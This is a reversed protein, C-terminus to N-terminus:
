PSYSGGSSNGLRPVGRSSCPWPSHAGLGPAESLACVVESIAEATKTQDSETLPTNGRRHRYNCSPSSTRSPSQHGGKQLSPVQFCPNHIRTLPSGQHSLHHLIQGCHPLGPNLGQTSCIGQLLAHCSVGSNKGPSDGHVFSGPLSYNMPDWLTLCLQAVSCIRTLVPRVRTNPHGLSEGARQWFWGREQHDAAASLGPAGPATGWPKLSSHKRFGTGGRGTFVAADPYPEPAVQLVCIKALLITFSQM